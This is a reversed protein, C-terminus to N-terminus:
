KTLMNSCKPWCRPWWGHVLIYVTHAAIMNLTIQTMMSMHMMHWYTNALDSHLARLEEKSLNVMGESAGMVSENGSALNTTSSVGAGDMKQAASLQAIEEGSPEAMSEDGGAQDTASSGGAQAIEEGLPDAMPEEGGDQNTASLLGAQAIEEELPERRWQSTGVLRTQPLCSAPQGVGDM